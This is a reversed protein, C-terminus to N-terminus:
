VASQGPFRAALTLSCHWARHGSKGFTSHLVSAAESPDRRRSSAGWRKPTNSRRQPGAAGAMDVFFSKANPDTALKAQLECEAALQLCDQVDLSPKAFM